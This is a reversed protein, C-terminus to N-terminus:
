CNLVRDLFRALLEKPRAAAPRAMWRTIELRPTDCNNVGRRATCATRYGAGAVLDRVAGNWVGYPYCFHDVSVGFADELSKKSAFIEERAQSLPIKDLHPHTMTHSGIEHGAALWERVQGADMLKESVEGVPLDWENRGGTLGAVLFQIARFRNQELPELAHLFVKEFGDDFTIVIHRARNDASATADGVPASTFGAKRLEELQRVFLRPSVYLAKFVTGAPRPGVKHYMLVPVGSQFHHSLGSLSSYYEQRPQRM